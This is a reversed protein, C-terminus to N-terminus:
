TGGRDREEGGLGDVGVFERLIRLPYTQQMWGHTRTIHSSKISSRQRTCCITRRSLM